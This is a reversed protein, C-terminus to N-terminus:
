RSIPLCSIPRTTFMSGFYGSLSEFSSAAATLRACAYM